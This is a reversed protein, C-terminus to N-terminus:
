RAASEHRFGIDKFTSSVTAGVYRAGRAAITTDGHRLESLGRPGIPIVAGCAGCEMGGELQRMFAGRPSRFPRMIPGSPPTHSLNERSHSLLGSTARVSLL